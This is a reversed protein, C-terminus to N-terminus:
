GNWYQWGLLKVLHGGVIVVVNGYACAIRTAARCRCGADERDVGVRSVGLGIDYEAVADDATGRRILESM